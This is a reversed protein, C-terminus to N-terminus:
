AAALAPTCLIRSGSFSSGKVKPFSPRLWMPIWLLQHGAHQLDLPDNDHMPLHARLRPANNMMRVHNTVKLGPNDRPPPAVLKCTCDKWKLKSHNRMINGPGGLPRQPTPPLQLHRRGCASRQSVSPLPQLRSIFHKDPPSHQWNDEQLSVYCPRPGARNSALRTMGQSTSRRKLVKLNSLNSRHKCHGSTGYLTDHGHISHFM